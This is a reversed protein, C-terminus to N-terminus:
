HALPRQRTTRFALMLGLALAIGILLGIGLQPWEIESGSSTPSVVPQTPAVGREMADVYGETGLPHSSRTAADVYGSSTSAVVNAAVLPAREFADRYTGAAQAPPVSAREGADVYVPQTSTPQLSGIRGEGFATPVAALAVVAIGIILSITRTM